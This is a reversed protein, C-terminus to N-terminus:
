ELKFLFGKYEDVRELYDRVVFWYVYCGNPAMINNNRYTGDWGANLDESDFIEEGWRNYIHM